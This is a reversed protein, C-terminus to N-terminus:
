LLLKNLYFIHCKASELELQIKIIEILSETNYEEQEKRTYDVDKTITFQLKVM